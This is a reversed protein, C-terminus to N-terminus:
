TGPRTTTRAVSARERPARASNAALQPPPDCEGPTALMPAGAAVVVPLEDAGFAGDLPPEPPPAASWNFVAPPAFNADHM